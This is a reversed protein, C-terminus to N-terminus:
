HNVSPMNILNMLEDLEPGITLTRRMLEEVSPWEVKLESGTSIDFATSDEYDVHSSRLPANM